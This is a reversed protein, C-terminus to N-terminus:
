VGGPGDAGAAQRALHARWDDWTDIDRLARLRAVSWGHDACRAQHDALTHSTSWRIGDFFRPLPRAMGVLYYGGDVAPGFVADRGRLLTFAEDVLDADLELCDTGVALVPGGRRLMAAFGAELRAGLDGAPQPLWEDVLPAWASFRESPAGDFFGVLASRGRVPQLKALVAGIWQRYLAAARDAGCSAALRTKVRGPEPYKLFVLVTGAM